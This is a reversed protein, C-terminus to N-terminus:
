ADQRDIIPSDVIAPDAFPPDAIASIATVPVDIFRGVQADVAARVAPDLGIDTVLVSVRDLDAFVCTGTEAFKSRDALVVLRDAIAILQRNTQAEALNPTLLTGGPDIAHSGLFVQDVRFRELAADAVPGVLADSRTRVGGTLYVTPGTRRGPDTLEAFVAVSNTIVTLDTRGTLCGALEVTTTGAGIAITSDPEVLRAAATAIATKADRRHVAKTSALLEEGRSHRRVAGGRVKRLSGEEDLAELDRRVTMESVGLEAALESVRATGSGAAELIRRRREAALM